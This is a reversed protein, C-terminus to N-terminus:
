EELIRKSVRTWQFRDLKNQDDFFQEELYPLIEMRWIDEIADYLDECLFFTIGVAYHPDGIQANLEKLVDVLGSADFDRARLYRELLRYDPYLGLFAFRRRLAHDVLAISRDATNMTGIIRVNEPISFLGGGALPVEHDRYELLYMLEGFVRSLNARNIEDIILVCVDDRDSARRCFELFRGEVMPYELQGDATTRPRIGQIFDEYAYAPHFQVLEAIGETGGVLYKSIQEAIFTKGTGPPGYIIAQKKRVIANVWRELLDIRFGTLAACQELSYPPNLGSQEDLDQRDIEIKGALVDAQANSDFIALCVAANHAKDRLPSKSWNAFRKKFYEIAAQFAPWQVSGMARFDALSVYYLYVESSEPSSRLFPTDGARVASGTDEKEDLAIIIRVEDLPRGEFGIVLCNLFNLRVVGKGTVPLTIAIREDSPDNVDLAACVQGLVQFAVAAEEGSVFAESLPPVLASVPKTASVESGILSEFKSRDLKKLTNLWSPENVNWGTLDSWEVPLRHGHEVDPVYYYNGVVTGIALVRSKGRNALIIDGERIHKAFRWVQNAGNKHWDEHKKILRDRQEDFQAKSLVSLDGLEDWGISAYGGELWAGWLRADAGPAIKWYQIEQFNFHKVAVMWHCFMDFVDTISLQPLATTELVEKLSSVADLAIQNTSPYAALTTNLNSNTLYKLVSVVKSNIVVYHDPDLANLIPSITGAQLGTSFSSKSFEECLESLANSDELAGFVLKRVATAIAPWDGPSAWGANEFKTHIDGAFVPAHSIWAGRERNASSDAYPLLRSLTLETQTVEDSAFLLQEVGAKADQRVRPYMELHRQGDESAIYETAFEQFLAEFTRERNPEVTASKSAHWCQWIFSQVDIMDGAGFPELYERLSEALELVKGYETGSAKGLKDGSLEKMVWNTVTPKVFFETEPHLFFLFYTPFTWKNPLGASSVYDTYADLREVISGTGHILDFFEQCFRPKDLDEVYLIGLDGSMPVSMWLLNTSKGVRAIRDLFEDWDGREIFKLLQERGLLEQALAQANRKYEIEDARFAADSFDRWNPLHTKFLEMLASFGELSVAM